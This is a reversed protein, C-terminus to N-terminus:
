YVTHTSLRPPPQPRPVNSAAFDDLGYNIDFFPSRVGHAVGFWTELAILCIRSSSAVGVAGSSKFDSYSRPRLNPANWMVDGIDSSGGSETCNETSRDCDEIYSPTIQADYLARAAEGCQTDESRDSLKVYATLDALGWAITSLAVMEEKHDKTIQASIADLKKEIKRLEEQMKQLTKMEASPGPSGSFINMVGLIATPATWPAAYAGMVGVAASAIAAGADFAKGYDEPAGFKNFIKGADSLSKSVDGAIKKYDELKLPKEGPQPEMITVNTSDQLVDITVKVEKLDKAQNEIQAITKAADEREKKSMNNFDQADQDIYGLTDGVAKRQIDSPIGAKTTLESAPGILADVQGHVNKAAQDYSAGGEMEALLALELRARFVKTVWIQYNSHLAAGGADALSLISPLVSARALLAIDTEPLSSMAPDVRVRERAFDNLVVSRTAPDLAAKVAEPDNAKEALINICTL